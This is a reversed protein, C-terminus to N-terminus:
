PPRAVTAVAWLIHVKPLLFAVWASHYCCEVPPGVVARLGHTTAIENHRISSSDTASDYWSM